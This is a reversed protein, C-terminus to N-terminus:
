MSSTPPTNVSSHNAKQFARRLTALDPLERDRHSLIPDSRLWSIGLSQDKWSCGIEEHPAWYHDMAYIHTSPELFLFGHAVGPPILIATMPNARIIMSAQVADSERDSRLDFLGLQMQGRILVLYDAHRIHVHMGRMVDAESDVVNWQCPEIGARWENRFVETFSGRTDCHSQLTLVQCGDPLPQEVCSEQQSPDAFM